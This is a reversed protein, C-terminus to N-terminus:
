YKKSFFWSIRNLHRRQLLIFFHLTLGNL